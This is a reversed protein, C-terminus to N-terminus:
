QSAGRCTRREYVMHAEAEAVAPEDEADVPDVTRFADEMPHLRELSKEFETGSPAALRRQQLHRWGAIPVVFAETLDLGLQAAHDASDIPTETVGDPRRDTIHIM